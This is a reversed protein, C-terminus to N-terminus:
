KNSNNNDVILEKELNEILDDYKEESKDNYTKFNKLNGKVKSEVNNFM